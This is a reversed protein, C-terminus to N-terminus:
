GREKVYRFEPEDLMKGNEDEYKIEISGEEVLAHLDELLDGLEEATSM